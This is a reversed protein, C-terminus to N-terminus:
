IKPNVSLYDNIFKDARDKIHARIGEINNYGVGSISWTIADTITNNRVLRVEQIIGFSLSYVFEGKETKHSDLYIHLYPAGKGEYHELLTLVKIGALRLKLEVDTRIQNKSLGAQEIDQNLDQVHVHVGKLNKLTERDSKINGAFVSTSLVLMLVMIFISRKYKKMTAGM